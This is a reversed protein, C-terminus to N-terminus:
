KSLREVGSDFYEKNLECGVYRRGNEKAVLCHALSGACPDFIIDDENSNDLLLDKLLEHNKKQQIYKVADQRLTLYTINVIHMLHQAVSKLGYLMKQQALIFINDM